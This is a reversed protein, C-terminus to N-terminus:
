TRIGPAVRQLQTCTGAISLSYRRKPYPGATGPLLRGVLAAAEPSLEVEQDLRRQAWPFDLHRILFPAFWGRRHQKSEMEGGAVSKWTTPTSSVTVLNGGSAMFRFVSDEAEFPMHATPLILTDFRDRTVVETSVLDAIALRTVQLGLERLADEFWGTERVPTGPFDAPPAFLAVCRRRLPPLEVAPLPTAASASLARPLPTGENLQGYNDRVEAASLARSYVRVEDIIGRFCVGENSAFSGITLPHSSVPLEGEVTFTEGLTGNVYFSVATQGEDLKKGTIAIQNFPYSALTGAPFRCRHVLGKGLARSSMAIFSRYVYTQWGKVYNGRVFLSLGHREFRDVKVWLLFTFDQTLAFDDHPPLEIHSADGTLRVARGELGLDVWEANVLKAHHARGSSDLAQTGEGENLRLHLLLAPDAARLMFGPTLLILWLRHM